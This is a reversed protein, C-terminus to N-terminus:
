LTMQLDRIFCIEAAATSRVIFTYSTINCAIDFCIVYHCAASVHPTVM